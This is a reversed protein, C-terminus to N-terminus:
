HGIVGLATFAAAVSAVGVAVGLVFGTISTKPAMAQAGLAFTLEIDAIDDIEDIPEPPLEVGSLVLAAYDQGDDFADVAPTHHLPRAPPDALEVITTPAFRDDMEAVRPTKTWALSPLEGGDIVGLTRVETALAKRTHHVLADETDVDLLHILETVDLPCTPREPAQTVPPSSGRSFRVDNVGRLSPIYERSNRTVAPTKM